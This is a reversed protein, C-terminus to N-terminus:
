KKQRDKMEFAVAIAAPVIIIFLLVKGEVTSSPYFFSLIFAVLYGLLCITYIIFKIFDIIPQFKEKITEM